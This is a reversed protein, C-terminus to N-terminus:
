RPSRDAPPEESWAHLTRFQGWGVSLIQRRGDGFLEAVKAGLHSSHPGVEIPEVRWVSGQRENFLVLTRNDPAGGPSAGQDTHEAAVVDPDGDRDIDLVSMSNISRLTAIRTQSWTQRPDQPARFWLLRANWEWDQSEESALVDLRGDGDVDAVAIRDLWIEESLPQTRALVHETWPVDLRGPNEMWLVMRGDTGHLALDLDGDRDLDGEAVGEETVHASLRHIPWHAPVQGLPLELAYLSEGRTFVIEERGGAGLQAATVGQTRGQTVPAVCRSEWDGLQADRAELWVVCEDATGLLDPQSDRDVDLIALVDFRPDLGVRRWEPGPQQLYLQGGAVIDIRGNRDVDGVQLGMKGEESRPRDTDIAQYRWGRAFQAALPPHNRLNEWAEVARGEGAYNKGVLDLDGDGDLDGLRLNHSGDRSLVEASWGGRGDQSYVVVRRRWRRSTHMEAVVVELTGDGDLDGVGLSHAGELGRDIWHVRWDGSRPDPPAEFWAVDGRGESATLVVDLRDDPGMRALAVRTDAPWAPAFPHAIWPDSGPNRPAELWRGGLVVDLDGDRDLDGLAIGEGNAALIEVRSFAGTPGALWLVVRQKDCTVVDLDGDADVDGVAIDHAYGGGVRHETWERDSPRGPNEFWLAGRHEEGVVVDLDGDGDIDALRGDTTFEGKAIPQRTWEPARYWVLGWRSAGQTGLVVDVLGDRDVDGLDVVDTCCEAGADPSDDVIRHRLGTQGPDSLRPGCATLFFLGPILASRRAWLRFAVSV